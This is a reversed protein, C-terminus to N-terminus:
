SKKKGVLEIFGFLLMTIPLAMNGFVLQKVTLLEALLGRGRNVLKSGDKSSPSVSAVSGYETSNYRVGMERLEGSSTRIAEKSLSNSRAPDSGNAGNESSDLTDSTTANVRQPERFLILLALL